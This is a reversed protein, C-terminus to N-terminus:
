KYNQCLAMVTDVLNLASDIGSGTLRKMMANSSRDIIECCHVWETGNQHLVIQLDYKSLKYKWVRKKFTDPRNGRGNWFTPNIDRFFDNVIFNAKARTM